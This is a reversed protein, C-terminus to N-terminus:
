HLNLPLSFLLGVFKGFPDLRYRYRDRVLFIDPRKNRGVEQNRLAFIGTILALGVSLNRIPMVIGDIISIAGGQTESSSYFIFVVAITILAMIGSIFSVLALRNTKRPNQM